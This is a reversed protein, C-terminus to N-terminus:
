SSVSHHTRARADATSPSESRHMNNKWQLISELWDTPTYSKVSNVITAMARSNKKKESSVINFSQKSQRGDCDCGRKLSTHLYRQFVKFHKFNGRSSFTVCEVHGGVVCVHAAKEKGGLDEIDADSCFVSRFYRFSHSHTTFTSEHLLWEVVTTTTTWHQMAFSARAHVCFSILWYDEQRTKKKKKRQGCRSAFSIFMSIQKKKYEESVSILSYNHKM